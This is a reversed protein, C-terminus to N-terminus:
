QGQHAPRLLDNVTKVPNFTSLPVEVFVTNWRSMAGNWLGPLELAKLVRGGRSKESIFGTDPDVFDLLNYPNGNEDKLACVLDVPNFHTGDKFLRVNREDSKDIQSSELIQPGVTGDADYVLFPGGGPEGENRVMGCVRLPRSLVQVLYAKLTEVDPFSRETRVCLVDNVFNQIESLQNNNNLANRLTHLHEFIQQQVSVLVGGLVKKFKTTDAKQGDPVVNDINKIFVVDADLQNLNHILAGHGGPRFLLHGDERFPENDADVALTDTSPLQESYTVHFDVNLQKAYREECQRVAQELLHRHEPSVTFHLHAEDDSAAYTAGEVLHEEFAKRVGEASHHFTLLAKPLTGYRMADDDLLAHVVEKYRAQAILDAVAAGYKHLCVANLEDYFAFHNIENFFQREFDTTPVDYSADLFAFLDKFMRTAAGSAPVFKVIKPHNSGVNRYDEWVQLYHECQQADPSFIGNGVTASAELRLFPFGTQFRQLQDAVQEPTIGHKQMDNLDSPSFQNHTM